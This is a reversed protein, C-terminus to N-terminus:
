NGRSRISHKGCGMPTLIFYPVKCYAKNKPEFDSILVELTKAIASDRLALVEKEALFPKQYGIVKGEFNRKEQLSIAEQLESKLVQLYLTYSTQNFGSLIKEEEKTIRRNIKGDPLKGELSYTDELFSIVQTAPVDLLNAYIPYLQELELQFPDQYAM